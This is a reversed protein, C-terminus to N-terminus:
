LRGPMPSRQLFGSTWGTRWIRWPLKGLLSLISFTSFALTAQDRTFGVEPDTVSAFFNILVGIFCFMGLSSSILILWFARTDIAQRITWSHEDPVVPMM